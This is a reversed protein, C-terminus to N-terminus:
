CALQHVAKNAGRRIHRCYFQQFQRFSNHINLVLPQIKWPTVRLHQKIASVIIESDSELIINPYSQQLALHVGLLAAEAEGVVPEVVGLRATQLRM